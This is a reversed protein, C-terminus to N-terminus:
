ILNHRIMNHKKLTTLSKCEHKCIFCKHYITFEHGKKKHGIMPPLQRSFNIYSAPQQGAVTIHSVLQQGPVITHSAIRQGPIFTHDIHQLSPTLSSNLLIRDDSESYCRYYNVEILGHIFELVNSLLLTDDDPNNSRADYYNVTVLTTQDSIASHAISLLDPSRDYDGYGPRRDYYNVVTPIDGYISRLSRLIDSIIDNGPNDLAIRRDYYNIIPQCGHVVSSVSPYVTYSLNNSENNVSYGIKDFAM